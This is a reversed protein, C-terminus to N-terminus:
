ERIVMSGEKKPRGLAGREMKMPEEGEVRSIAGKGKESAGRQIKGAECM